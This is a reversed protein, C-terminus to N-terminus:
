AAGLRCCSSPPFARTLSALSRAACRLACCCLLLVDSRDISRDVSGDCCGPLCSGHHGVVRGCGASGGSFSSPSPVGTRRHRRQPPKQAAVLAFDPLLHSLYYHIRSLTHTNTYGRTQKPNLPPDPSFGKNTVSTQRDTQRCGDSERKKYIHPLHTGDVVVRWGGARWADKNPRVYM